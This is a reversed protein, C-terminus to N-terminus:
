PQLLHLHLMFQPIYRPTDLTTQSDMLEFIYTHKSPLLMSVEMSLVAWCEYSVHFTSFRAVILNEPQKSRVELDGFCTCAVEEDDPLGFFSFLLEHGCREIGLDDEVTYRSSTNNLQSSFSEYLSRFM